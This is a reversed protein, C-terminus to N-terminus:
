KKGKKIRILYYGNYLNMKTFITVGGLWDKLETALLLPYRDKKTFVNLKKYDVILRDSGNKKFVWMISSAVQSISERIWGKALNDDIYKRFRKLKNALISYIPTYIPM